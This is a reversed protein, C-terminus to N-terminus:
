KWGGGLARYLEVNASLRQRRIDAFDLQSQLLNSQATIVELYNAMGAKYLLSANFIALQLTDIRNSTIAEQEGLHDISALANAVEGVANLVSQKFTIVAQERNIKAVEYQTKLQRHQLLPQAISGAVMGFLSNPINFWNSAKFADLGGGATISLVPYMNAQAAGVSANAAVLLLENARVDPRRSVLNAPIGASLQDAVAIARLYGRSPVPGPLTGTLIHLGNEQLAISRQLQPVLVAAAQRQVYAQEVALQTADGATKQLEIISLISDGLQVNHHAIALQEDLMLLNYYATAIDSVLRTQVAKKAEYTQLYNAVVAEKQRRLKGWVDVEWSVGLQVSYDEIHDKGLFQTTSLGNLSNKSLYSTQAGVSANVTPIFAARAQKVQEGAADIRTIALQLDYNNKLGTDILSLLATDTFFQKWQTDGVSLTDATATQFQAPLPLTPQVYNRGARCAWLGVALLLFSTYLPISKRM